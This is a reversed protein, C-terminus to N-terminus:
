LESVVMKAGLFDLLGYYFHLSIGTVFRRIAGFLVHAVGKDCGVCDCAVACDEVLGDAEFPRGLQVDIWSQRWGFRYSTSLCRVYGLCKM